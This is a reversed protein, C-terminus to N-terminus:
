QKRTLIKFVRNGRGMKLTWMRRSILFFIDLKTIFCATVILSEVRRLSRYSSSVFLRVVSSAKKSSKSQLDFLLPRIHLRHQVLTGSTRLKDIQKWFLCKFSQSKISNLLVAWFYRGLEAIVIPKIRIRVAMIIRKSRRTTTIPCSLFDTKNKDNSSM